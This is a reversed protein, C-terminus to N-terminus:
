DVTPAELLRLTKRTADVEAQVGFPHTMMPDTHGAEVNALVPIRATETRGAVVDWLREVQDAAYGYPRAVLLASAADFVGLQELDSLYSDVSAPPPTEESTELLLIAGDPDLWASSGKLHRCITELCGGLLPGRATGERITVWGDSPRLERPRALDARTDWDLFEDTWSDSPEYAFPEGGFWAARLYRDTEPLVAPFEGLESVLAPGHFTGLGAHKAIAWHLVTMDSYGQFVKPHERILEFDLLPLLQNSHDGGISALVVAVEEDAFAAHLDAARAAPPASTWGENRAANPMQRVKLGLSELYATGREARHPWAGAAGFSPSVIAM